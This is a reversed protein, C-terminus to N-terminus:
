HPNPPTTEETKPKPIPRFSEVRKRKLPSLEQSKKLDKLPNEVTKEIPAMDLIDKASPPKEKPKYRKRKEVIRASDNIGYPDSSNVVESATIKINRVVAGIAGFPPLLEGNRRFEVAGANGLTILFFEAASWSKEYNPYMFAQGSKKGDINIKLWASDLAKVHLRISDSEEYFSFFGKDRPKIVVTDSENDSQAETTQENTKGGNDFFTFYIILFFGITIIIYILVNVLKTNNDKSILSKTYSIISSEKQPVIPEAMTFKVPEPLKSRFLEDIEDQIESIPIKLLNAYTLLFSKTYVAPVITYNGNELAKIIHARIKTLESVKDLTLKEKERASRLRTGLTEMGDTNYIIKM